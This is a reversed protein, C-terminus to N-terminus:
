RPIPVTRDISGLLGAYQEGGSQAMASATAKKKFSTPMHAGKYRDTERLISFDTYDQPVKSGYGLGVSIQFQKM